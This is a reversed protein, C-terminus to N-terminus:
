LLTHFVNLTLLLSVLVFGIADNQIKITLKSCIECKTKTNRNNAKVLYIVIPVKTVLVQICGLMYKHDHTYMKYYKLIRKSKKTLGSM